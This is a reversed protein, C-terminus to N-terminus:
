HVLVQVDFEGVRMHLILCLVRVHHASQLAAPLPLSMACLTLGGCACTLVLMNYLLLVLVRAGARQVAAAGAGASLDVQLLLVGAGDSKTCCCNDCCAEHCVCHFPGKCPRLMAEAHGQPVAAWGAKTTCQLPADRLKTNIFNPM